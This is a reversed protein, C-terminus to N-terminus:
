FDLVISFFVQFSVFQSYFHKLFNDLTLIYPKKEREWKRGQIYYVTMEGGRTVGAYTSFPVTTYGATLTRWSVIIFLTGLFSRPRPYTKIGKPFYLLRHLPKVSGIWLGCNDGSWVRCPVEVDRTWVLRRCTCLFRTVHTPDYLYLCTCVCGDDVGARKCIHMSRKKEKRKRTRTRNASTTAKRIM